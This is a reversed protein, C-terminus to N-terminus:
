RDFPALEGQEKKRKEPVRGLGYIGKRTVKWFRTVTQPERWGGAKLRITKFIRCIM